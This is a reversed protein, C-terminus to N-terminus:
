FRFIAGIMIAVPNSRDDYFMPQWKLGASFECVNAVNFDVGGGLNLGAAWAGRDNATIGAAPYLRVVGMDFVYHADCSLDVTCGKHLLATISPEIRWNSNNFRYRGVAGLGLVTDGTNTYIGLRPGLAWSGADQASATVAFMAAFALFLLKKM